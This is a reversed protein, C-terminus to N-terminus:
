LSVGYLACLSEYLMSQVLEQRSWSIHCHSEHLSHPTVLPYLKFYQQTGKLLASLGYAVAPGERSITTYTEM